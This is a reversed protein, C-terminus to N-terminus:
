VDETATQKDQCVPPPKIQRRRLAGPATCEIELSSESSSTSPDADIKFMLPVQEDDDDELRLPNMSIFYVGDKKHVHLTPPLPSTDYYEDDDHQESTATTGSGASIPRRVKRVVKPGKPREEEVAVEIGAAVKTMKIMNAITKNIAGPKWGRRKRLGDGSDATNWLWGMSKPVNRSLHACHRHGVNIGPYMGDTYKYISMYKKRMRTTPSDVKREVIKKALKGKYEMFMEASDKRRMKGRSSKTLTSDSKVKQSRPVLINPFELHNIPKEEVAHLSSQDGRNFSESKLELAKETMTQSEPIPKETKSDKHDIQGEVSLDVKEKSSPAGVKINNSDSSSAVNMECPSSSFKSISPYAKQRKHMSEFFCEHDDKKGTRNWDNPYKSSEFAFKSIGMGDDNTLPISNPLKVVREHDKKSYKNSGGTYSKDDRRESNPDPLANSFLKIALAWALTEADIPEDSINNLLWSIPSYSVIKQLIGPEDTSHRLHAEEPSLGPLYRKTEEPEKTEGPEKYEKAGRKFPGFFCTQIDGADNNNKIPFPISEPLRPFKRKAGMSDNKAGCCDNCCSRRENEVRPDDNLFLDKIKSLAEIWALKEFDKDRPIGDENHEVNSPTKKLWNPNFHRPVSDNLEGARNVFKFRANPNVQRAPFTNFGQEGGQFQEAGTIPLVNEETAIIPKLDRANNPDVLKATTYPEQGFLFDRQKQAQLTNDKRDNRFMYEGNEGILQFQNVITVGYCSLRLFLNMKGIPVGFIDKVPLESDLINSIPLQTDEEGAEIILDEFDPGLRVKAGGVLDYQSERNKRYIQIVLPYRQIQKMLELPLMPFM